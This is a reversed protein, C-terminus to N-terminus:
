REQMGGTRSGPLTHQIPAVKPSYLLDEYDAGFLVAGGAEAIAYNSQYREDEQGQEYYTARYASSLVGLAANHAQVPDSAGIFALDQTHTVDDWNRGFQFPGQPVCVRDFKRVPVVVRAPGVTSGPESLRICYTSMWENFARFDAYSRHVIRVGFSSSTVKWPYFSRHRRAGTENSIISTGIDLRVVQVGISGYGAASIM